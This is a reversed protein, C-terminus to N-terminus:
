CRVMLEFLIFEKIMLNIVKGGCKVVCFFIDFELDVIYLMNNFVFIGRRILICVRVFFEVFVFLKVLYDDVGLEFGKVRDNVYDCVILFFVFIFKGFERLLFLIKWGEIDFLMVDFVILEYDGIMLKYYGDM